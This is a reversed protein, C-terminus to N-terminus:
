RCVLEWRCDRGGDCVRAQRCESPAVVPRAVAPRPPRCVAPKCVIPRNVFADDCLPQMQGDVCRCTCAANAAAGGLLLTLAVFITRMRVEHDAGRTPCAM